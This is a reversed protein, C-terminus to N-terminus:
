GVVQGQHRVDLVHALRPGFPDLQDHLQDHAAGHARRDLLEVAEVVDWSGVGRDAMEHDPGDVLGNLLGMRIATAPAPAKPMLCRSPRASISPTSTVARTLRRSSCASSTARLYPM